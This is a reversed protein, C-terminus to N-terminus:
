DVAAKEQESVLPYAAELRAWTRRSVNWRYLKIREYEGDARLVFLRRSDVVFREGHGIPRVLRMGQNNLFQWFGREDVRAFPIAICALTILGPIGGCLVTVALLKVLDLDDGPDFLTLVFGVAGCIGAVIPVSAFPPRLKM